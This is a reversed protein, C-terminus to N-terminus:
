VVPDKDDEASPCSESSFLLRTTDQAATSTEDDADLASVIVVRPRIQTSRALVFLRGNALLAKRFDSLSVSIAEKDPDCVM